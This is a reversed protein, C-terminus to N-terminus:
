TTKHIKQTYYLNSCRKLTFVYFKSKSSNKKLIVYAEVLLFSYYENSLVRFVLFQLKPNISKSLILLLSKQVLSKVLM